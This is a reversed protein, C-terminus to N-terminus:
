RSTASLRSLPRRSVNSSRKSPKGLKNRDIKLGIQHIERVREEQEEKSFQQLSERMLQAVYNAAKKQKARKEKLTVDRITEDKAARNDLNLERRLTYFFYRDVHKLWGPYV